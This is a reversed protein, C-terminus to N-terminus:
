EGTKSLIAKTLGFVQQRLIKDPLGVTGLVGIPGLLFGVWFNSFGRYGKEAAIGKALGGCLLAVVFGGLFATGVHESM